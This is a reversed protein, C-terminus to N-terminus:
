IVEGGVDVDVEVDVWGGGVVGCFFGSWRCRGGVGEGVGVFSFFGRLRGRVREGEGVSGGRLRGRM